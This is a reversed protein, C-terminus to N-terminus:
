GVLAAGTPALRSYPFAYQRPDDHRAADGLYVVEVVLDDSPYGANTAYDAVTEGVSEIVYEDARDDRVRTVVLRDGARPEGQEGSARDSVERRDTERDRVIDGPELRCDECLPPEIMEPVFSETGCVACDARRKGPPPVREQTIEIAVRRLHKCQTGRYQHDPCTCRQGPVDVSYSHDEHTEVRYVGGGLPTVAMPEIWARVAREDLERLDPALAVKSPHIQSM